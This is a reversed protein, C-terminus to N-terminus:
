ELGAKSMGELFKQMPGPTYPVYRECWASSINPQGARLHQLASRGGRDDWKQWVFCRSIGRIRLGRTVKSSPHQRLPLTGAVKMLGQCVFFADDGSLGAVREVVRETTNTAPARMVRYRISRSTAKSFIV